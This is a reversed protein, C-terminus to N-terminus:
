KFSVIFVEPSYDWRQPVVVNNTKCQKCKIGLYHLSSSYGRYYLMLILGGGRGEATFSRLAISSGSPPPTVFYKSDSGYNASVFIWDNIVHKYVNVQTEGASEVSGYPCSILGSSITLNLCHMPYESHAIAGNMCESLFYADLLALFLFINNNKNGLWSQSQLESYSVFSFEISIRHRCFSLQGLSVRVASSIASSCWVNVFRMNFIFITIFPLLFFIFFSLKRGPGTKLQSMIEHLSQSNLSSSCSYGPQSNNNRISYKLWINRIILNSPIVKVRKQWRFTNTYKFIEWYSFRGTITTKRGPSRLCPWAKFGSSM